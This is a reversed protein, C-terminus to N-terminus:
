GDEEEKIITIKEVNNINDDINNNNNNNNNNNIKKIEDNFNQNIFNHLEIQNFNKIINEVSLKRIVIQKINYIFNIKQNKKFCIFVNFKFSDCISINKHKKIKYRLLNNSILKELVILNNNNNKNNIVNFNDNSNNLIENSKNLNQNKYLFINNNNNLNNSNKKNIEENENMFVVKKQNNNNNVNKNNINKFNKKIKEEMKNQINIVDDADIMEVYFLGNLFVYVFFEFIKNILFSFILFDALFNQFKENVINFEVYFNNKNYFNVEFFSNPFNTNYNESFIFNKINLNDFDFSNEIHNNKFIFGDDYNFIIKEIPFNYKYYFQNIYNIENFVFKKEIKNKKYNVVNKELFLILKIENKILFNNIKEETECVNNIVNNNNNIESSNVCKSIFFKIYSNNILNNNNIEFDENLCIFNSYNNLNLNNTQIDKIDCFSKNLIVFKEIEDNESNNVFFPFIDILNNNIENYNKDLLKMRISNKKITININEYSQKILSYFIKNNNTLYNHFLIIFYIIILIMSILTLIKSLFTSYKKKTKIFLKPSPAIFDIKSLFNM